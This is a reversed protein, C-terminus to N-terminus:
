RRRHLVGPLAGTVVHMAGAAAARLGTAPDHGEADPELAFRMQVPVAGRRDALEGVHGFLARIRQENEPLVETLFTRVGEARARACLEELLVTAVGRRQWDDVVTIAAEATQPDADLKVFRAVGVIAGSGPDTAVLAEHRHHDIATLYRLERDTLRVKPVFFRRRRSEASLRAFAASLRETDDEHM